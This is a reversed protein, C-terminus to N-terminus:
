PAPRAPRAAGGRAGSRATTSAPTSATTHAPTDPPLVVVEAGGTRSARHLPPWRRGLLLAASWADRRALLEVLVGFALGALTGLVVHVTVSGVGLRELVTRTGATAFVHTTYVTFSFGGLVVLPGVRWPVLLLSLCALVGLAVALPDGRPPVREVVGLLGLQTTATLALALVVALVHAPRPASRWGFRQAALGALFFPLLYVATRWGLVNGPSPVLVEALGALVVAALAGGLRDLLHLRELVAVLLFVWFVSELFWFHAVPHLHWLYWPGDSTDGGLRRSLAFATGVVLVPVLLRRAKGRAFAGLPGSLPRRAHVVGSLFTFLPMRLYTLSDVAYSWPNSADLRLGADPGDGRVHFLVLLVCALGRLTEVVPDRRPDPRLLAPLSRVTASRPM